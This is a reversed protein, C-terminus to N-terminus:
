GDLFIVANTLLSFLHSFIRVPHRKAEKLRRQVSADDKAITPLKSIDVTPEPAVLDDDSSDDTSFGHLHGDDDSDSNAVDEITEPMTEPEPTPERAPFIKERNEHDVKPSELSWFPAIPNAIPLYLTLSQCFTYKGMLEENESESNADAEARDM